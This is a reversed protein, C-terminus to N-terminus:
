LRLVSIIGVRCSSSSRRRKFTSVMKGGILFTFNGTGEKVCHVHAAGDGSFDLAVGGEERTSGTAAETVHAGEGTSCWEEGFGVM